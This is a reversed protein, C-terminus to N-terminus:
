PPGSVEWSDTFTQLAGIVVDEIIIIIVATVVVTFLQNHKRQALRQWSRKARRQVGLELGWSELLGEALVM